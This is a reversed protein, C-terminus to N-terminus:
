LLEPPVKEVLHKATVRLRRANLCTCSAIVESGRRPRLNRGAVRRKLCSRRSPAAGQLFQFTSSAQRLM